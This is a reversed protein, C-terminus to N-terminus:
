TGDAPLRPVDARYLSVLLGFAEGREPDQDPHAAATEISRALARAQAPTLWLHSLRTHTTDDREPLMEGLAAEVLFRAGGGEDEPLRFGRSVLEFYQETGGRVQRTGGARVLGADQLVRVHHSVTGKALGTAEALQRLTAPRQRLANVMRHRVPHGLAKFHAPSDLVLPEDDETPRPEM